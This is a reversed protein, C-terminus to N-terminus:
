LYNHSGDCNPMRKSHGCVCDNIGKGNLIRERYKEIRSHRTSSQKAGSFFLHYGRQRGPTLAEFATKFMEDKELVSLLEDTFELNVSQKLAPKLGAKEVEIAEFIYAKITSEMKHVSELNNFTLQKVSQSNKGPSRLINYEDSLLIGKFFGLVCYDKLKGIIIINKKQYSYCPQRWKLEETLGCDLAITRLQTMEAKWKVAAALFEDVKPNM